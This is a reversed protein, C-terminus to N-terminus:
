KQVKKKGKHVQKTSVDNIRIRYMNKKANSNKNPENSSSMNSNRCKQSRAFHNIEGCRLCTKGRTPCDSLKEHLNYNCFPCIKVEPKQQDRNESQTQQNQLIQTLAALVNNIEANDGM